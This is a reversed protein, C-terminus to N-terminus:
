EMVLPYFNHHDSLEKSELFWQLLLFHVIAGPGHDLLLPLHMWILGVLLRLGFVLGNWIKWCTLHQHHFNWLIATSATSLAPLLSKVGLTLLLISVLNIDQLDKFLDSLNLCTETSDECWVLSLVGMDLGQACIRVGVWLLLVGLFDIDNAAWCLMLILLMLFAGAIVVIFLGFTEEEIWDFVGAVASAKQLGLLRCTALLIDDSAQDILLTLLGDAVVNILFDRDILGYLNSMWQHTALIFNIRFQYIFGSIWLLDTVALAFFLRLNVGPDLM